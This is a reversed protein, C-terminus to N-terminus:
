AQRDLWARGAPTSRLHSPFERRGQGGKRFTIFGLKQLSWILHVTAHIGLGGMHPVIDRPDEIPEHTVVYRLLRVKNTM